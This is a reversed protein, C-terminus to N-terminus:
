ARLDDYEPHKDMFKVVYACRPVVKLGRSRAHDLGVTVLKAAIGRGSLEEPVETHTFTITGPSLKYGARALRGDVTAEFQSRSENNTVRIEETPM